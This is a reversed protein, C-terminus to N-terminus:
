KGLMERERERWGDEEGRKPTERRDAPGGRLAKGGASGIKNERLNLIELASNVALADGLAEM